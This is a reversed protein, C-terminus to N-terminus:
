RVSLQNKSFSRFGDLASSNNKEALYGYVLKVLQQSENFRLGTFKGVM